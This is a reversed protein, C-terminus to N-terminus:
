TIDRRASQCVRASLLRREGDFRGEPRSINISGLALVSDM